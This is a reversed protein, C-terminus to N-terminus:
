WKQLLEREYWRMEDDDAHMRGNMENWGPFCCTAVIFSYSPLALKGTVM